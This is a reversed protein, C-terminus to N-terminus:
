VVTQVDLTIGLEEILGKTESDSQALAVMRRALRKWARQVRRQGTKTSVHKSPVVMVILGWDVPELHQELSFPLRQTM